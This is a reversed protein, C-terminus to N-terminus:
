VWVDEHMAPGKSGAIAPRHASLTGHETPADSAGDAGGASVPSTPAVGHATNAPGAFIVEPFPNQLTEAYQYDQGFSKFPGRPPPSTPTESMPRERPGDIPLSM